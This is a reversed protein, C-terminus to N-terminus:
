FKESIEEHRQRAVKSLKREGIAFAEKLQIALDQVKNLASDEDEYELCTLNIEEAIKSVAMLGFSKSNSKLPHAGRATKNLNLERLGNDIERIYAAADELYEEIAVPLEGKLLLAAQEFVEEDFADLEILEAPDRSQEADEGDFDHLDANGAVFGQLNDILIDRWKPLFADKPLYADMGAELCTEKDGPRCHGTFAIVPVHNKGEKAEQMRITKVTELGDLEPMDWDMIILDFDDHEAMKTLAIFGNEASVTEFECARLIKNMINRHTTDDEVVLVTKIHRGLRDEPIEPAISLKTNKEIM